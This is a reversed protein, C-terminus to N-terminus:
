DAEMQLSRTGTSPFGRACFDYHQDYRRCDGTLCLIGVDIDVNALRLRENHLYSKIKVSEIESVIYLPLIGFVFLFYGGYSMFWAFGHIFSLVAGTGWMLVFLSMMSVFLWVNFRTNLYGRFSDKDPFDFIKYM